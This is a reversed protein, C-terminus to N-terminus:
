RKDMSDALKRTAVLPAGITWFGPNKLVEWATSLPSAVTDSREAASSLLAVEDIHVSRRKGDSGLIPISSIDRTKSELPSSAGKGSLFPFFEGTQKDYDWGILGSRVALAVVTASDATDDPLALIADYVSSIAVVGEQGATKARARAESVRTKISSVLSKNEGGESIFLGKGDEPSFINRVKNHAAGFRDVLDKPVVDTNIRLAVGSLNGSDSEFLRAMVAASGRWASGFGTVSQVAPVVMPFAALAAKAMPDNSTLSSLVPRTALGETIARRNLLDLAALDLVGSYYQGREYVGNFMGFQPISAVFSPDLGYQTRPVAMYSTTKAEGGFKPLFSINRSVTLIADAAARDPNANGTTHLRYLAVAKMLNRVPAISGYASAAKQIFPIKDSSADGSGEDRSFTDTNPDIEPLTSLATDVMTGYTDSLAKYEASKTPNNVFNVADTALQIAERVQRSNRGGEASGYSDANEIINLIGSLPGDQRKALIRVDEPPLSALTRVHDPALAGTAVSGKIQAFFGEVEPSVVEAYQSPLGRSKVFSRLAPRLTDNFFGGADGAQSLERYKASIAAVEPSCEEAVQLLEGNTARRFLNRHLKSAEEELESLFEKTLPAAATSYGLLEPAKFLDDHVAQAMRHISEKPMGCLETPSWTRKILEGLAYSTASRELEKLHVSTAEPALKRVTTVFTALKSRDVGGSRIEKLTDNRVVGLQEQDEAGDGRGLYAQNVAVLHNYTTHSIRGDALLKTATGIITQDGKLVFGEAAARFNAEAKSRLTERGVFDLIPSRNIEDIKTLYTEPLVKPGLSGAVAMESEISSTLSDKERDKIVSARRVLAKQALSARANRQSLTLDTESAYRDFGEQNTARYKSLFEQRSSSEKDWASILGETFREDLIDADPANKVRDEFETLRLADYAEIEHKALNAYVKARVDRAESEAAKRHSVDRAIHGLNTAVTNLPSLDVQAQQPASFQARAGTAGPRSLISPRDM